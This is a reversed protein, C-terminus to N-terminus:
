EGELEEIEDIIPDCMMVLQEYVVDKHLGKVDRPMFKRAWRGLAQYKYQILRQKEKVPELKYLSEMIEKLKDFSVPYFDNNDVGVDWQLGEPPMHGHSHGYVNWSGYHSRPWTRMCYHTGVIYQGDIKKDWMTPTQQGLWSDHSGKLFSHNGNLQKIYTNAFDKNGLTTDGLHVVVDDNTVVSNHRRIIENDMEMVDKFPRHCYKIINAHGFHCDATFFYM